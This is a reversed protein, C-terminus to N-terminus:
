RARTSCRPTATPTRSCASSARGCASPTTWRTCRSRTAAGRGPTGFFNPERAPRWCWPTARGARGTPRRSRGAAPDVSAVEAMKVDVNRDNHFVKRLSFAIDSPARAAVDRGPLAAAPVPPLQQPRAAHRARRRRRAARVRLGAFGGGVVARPASWRSTASMRWARRGERRAPGWASSCTTASACRTPWRRSRRTSRASARSSARTSWTSTTSSTPGATAHRAGVDRPRRRLPVHRGPARRGRGPHRDQPLRPAPDPPREHMGPHKLLAKLEGYLRKKRSRTRRAHLQDARERRPRAHRPEGTAAPGRDVALLRGRPPGHEGADAAARAQDRLPKEGRYMDAQSKGVMQINGLPFEFDDSGFYFDNLGLTKQFVTPNQKRRCRWCPRATTSRTTAGSSTPATPCATRTSTTPRPSCCSPRTAGRRVLGGRHRGRYDRARGRTRGRGRTM